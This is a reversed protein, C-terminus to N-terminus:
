LLVNAQDIQRQLYNHLELGFLKKLEWELKTSLNKLMLGDLLCFGTKQSFSLPLLSPVPCPSLHSLFNRISYLGLAERGAESTMGQVLDSYVGM